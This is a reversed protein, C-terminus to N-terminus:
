AEKIHIDSDEKMEEMAKNEWLMTNALDKKSEDLHRNGEVIGEQSIRKNSEYNRKASLYPSVFIFFMIVSCASLFGGGLILIGLLCGTVESPNTAAGYMYSIFSIITSLLFGISWKKFSLVSHNYKFDDEGSKLRIKYHKIDQEFDSIRVQLDNVAKLIREKQKEYSDIKCSLNNWKNKLEESKSLLEEYKRINVGKIPCFKLGLAHEDGCVACKIVLKKGCKGCFRTKESNAFGCEPCVKTVGALMLVGKPSYMLKSGCSECVMDESINPSGCNPCRKSEYPM